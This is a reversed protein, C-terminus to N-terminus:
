MEEPNCGEGGMRLMMDEMMGSMMRSIMSPVAKTIITVAIGGAIASFLLALIYRGTPPKLQNM